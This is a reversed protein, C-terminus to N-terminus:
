GIAPFDRVVTEEAHESGYFKQLFQRRRETHPLSKLIGAWVLERATDTMSCGIRLREAGSKEMMRCFLQRNLEAPTDAVSYGTDAYRDPEIKSVM